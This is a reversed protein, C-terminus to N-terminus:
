PSSSLVSFKGGQGLLRSKGLSVKVHVQVILSYMHRQRRCRSHRRRHRRQRSHRRRHRRRCCCHCVSSLRRLELFCVPRSMCIASAFASVM